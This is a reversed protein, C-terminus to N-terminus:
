YNAVVPAGWGFRYNIGFKVVHVQQDIDASSVGAPAPAFRTFQYTESGFDMFNYEIKASWNPLFGYELGAGVMWGTRTDSVTNTFPAGGVVGVHEVDAFAVGGKVYLLVRDWAYGLRGAVTGVWKIKSCADFTTYTGAVFIGGCGDADAWSWQVEVGWVWPGTQWNFGAQVGGLFGDPDTSVTGPGNGFFPPVETWDKSSWLGGVHGGIYFGTWNYLMVPPAVPAKYAPAPRALDAAYAPLAAAVALVAVGSLLLRKM